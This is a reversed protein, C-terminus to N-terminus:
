YYHFAIQNMLRGAERHLDIIAQLRDGLDKVMVARLPTAPSQYARSVVEDTLTEAREAMRELRVYLDKIQYLSEFGRLQRIMDIVLESLEQLWSLPPGFDVGERHEPSLGFRDAFRRAALPISALLGALAEVEAKPLSAVNAHILHTRIEEAVKANERAPEDFVTTDPAGETASRVLAQMSIRAQNGGAQLLDYVRGDTLEPVSNM